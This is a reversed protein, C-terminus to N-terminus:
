KMGTREAILESFSKRQATTKPIAQAGREKARAFEAESAQVAELSTLGEASYRRLIGQIYSWSRKNEDLAREIAHCVVDASLEVTYSELLDVCSPSPMSQVRDMYLTMVKALGPDGSPEKGGRGRNEKVGQKNNEIEIATETELPLVVTNGEQSGSDGNQKNWRKEINEKQRKSHAERRSIEFEARKNFLKGDDDKIFKSLLEDSMKGVAKEMEKRTMHGRQQQLCLLTIYQGREKMSMLQVGTLFDSTYFLMAPDKM